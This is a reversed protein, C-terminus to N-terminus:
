TRKENAEVLPPYAVETRWWRSIDWTQRWQYYWLLLRLKFKSATVRRQSRASPSIQVENESLCLLIVVVSHHCLTLLTNYNNVSYQVNPKTDTGDLMFGHGLCRRKQCWFTLYTDINVTTEGLNQTLKTDINNGRCLGVRNYCNLDMAANPYPSFGNCGTQVRYILRM